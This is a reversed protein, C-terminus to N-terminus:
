KKPYLSASYVGPAVGPKNNAGGVGKGVAGGQLGLEYKTPIVTRPPPPHAGLAPVGASAGKRTDTSGNRTDSSRFLSIIM